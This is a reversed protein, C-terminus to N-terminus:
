AVPALRHSGFTRATRRRHDNACVVECKAMEAVIAALGNKSIMDSINAVKDGQHDFELVVIDTEGCDVCPHTRLYDAVLRQAARRNRERSTARAAAHRTRTTLYYAANYASKCESCMSNRGDTRARNVPFGALPKDRQCKYCHKM